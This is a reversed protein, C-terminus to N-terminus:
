IFAATVHQTSDKAARDPMCPQETSVCWRKDADHLDDDLCHVIHIWLEALPRLM